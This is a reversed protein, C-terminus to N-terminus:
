GLALAAAARDPLTTWPRSAVWRQCSRGLLQNRLWAGYLRNMEVVADQQSTTLGLFRAASPRTSFTHRLADPSTEIVYLARVLADGVLVEVLGPEIGEGEVIAPAGAERVREILTLLTPRLSATEELLLGVLHEAGLGV